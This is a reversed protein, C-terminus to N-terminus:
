GLTKVVIKSIAKLTDFVGDGTVAVAEFYPAREIWQGDQQECWSSAPTTRSGAAVRQRAPEDM